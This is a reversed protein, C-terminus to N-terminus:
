RILNVQGNFTKKSGKMDQVSIKYIYIDIQSLESKNQAFGDWPKDYENSQYILEGWRNYISMEFATFNTGYGTFTDNHGDGDPSFANPIYFSFEPSIYVCITSTYKCGISNTSIITACYTGTDTYTHLYSESECDTITAEDGFNVTCGVSNNSSFNYNIVPELESVTINEAAISNTPTEIAHIAGNLSLSDRCGNSSIAVLSVNYIGASTYTHSPNEFQSSTGDGFYWVYSSANSSHNTFTTVFPICLTDTGSFIAQPPNEVNITHNSFGICGQPDTVSLSYTTNVLPAVTIAPANPGAGHWDFTYSLNGGTAISHLVTSKGACILTAGNIQLQLPAPQIITISEAYVCTAADTVTFTYNGAALNNVSTANVAGPNWSFFLPQTGGSITASASGNTLGFCSIDTHQMQISPPQSVSITVTDKDICFGNTVTLIFDTNITPNVSISQINQVPTTNWSFSGIGTASLTTSNGICITDNIGASANPFQYVNVIATDIFSLGTGDSATVTYITTSVPCVSITAGSLNGPQWTYTIGSTAGTANAILSTCSGECIGTANAIVGTFCNDVSIAITETVSIPTGCSTQSTTTLTYTTTISPCVSVTNTTAGGPQWLYTYTGSAGSATTSLTSCSGPCVNTPSATVPSTLPTSCLEFLNVDDIYMYNSSSSGTMQTNADDRFNGIVMHSEGGQACFTGTVTFCTGTIMNGPTNDIQPIANLSSGAGIFQTGGNMTNIDILGQNHFWAGIGDCSSLPNGAAGVKSKVVMSFCYTKGAVLPTNLQTQVYERGNAFSTKTFFGVRASGTMCSNNATNTIGACSSFYDPTSGAMSAPDFAETGYWGQVPTQNTYIQIDSTTCFATSTEFGPNPLLNSGCTSACQANTAIPIFAVLFILLCKILRKM